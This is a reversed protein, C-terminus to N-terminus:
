TGSAGNGLHVLTPEMLIIGVKILYCQKEAKEVCVKLENCDM